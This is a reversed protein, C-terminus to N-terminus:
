SVSVREIRQQPKLDFTSRTKIKRLAVRLYIQQRACESSIAGREACLEDSSDKRLEIDAGQCPVERRQDIEQFVSVFLEEHVSIKL